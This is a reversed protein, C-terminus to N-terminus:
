RYLERKTRKLSDASIEALEKVLSIATDEACGPDCLVAGASDLYLEEASFMDGLLCMRRVWPESLYRRLPAVDSRVGLKVEPMRLRATRSVVLIDASTAILMGLGVAAGEVAAIVPAPHAQIAALSRAAQGSAAEADVAQKIDYGASFVGGGGVLVIPRLDDALAEFAATLEAFMEISFANVPPRDFMIRVHSEHTSSTMAMARIV